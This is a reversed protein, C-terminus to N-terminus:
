CKCQKTKYNVQPATRAGRKGGLFLNSSAGSYLCSHIKRCQGESLEPYDNRNDLLFNQLMLRYHDAKKQYYDRLKFTDSVSPIQVNDDTTTNLGINNIKFTISVTLNAIVSYALFWQCKDLLVQYKDPIDNDYVYNRLADLLNTGLVEQLGIDQAERIAEYIYKDQLNDSVQTASRIFDPSTLLIDNIM